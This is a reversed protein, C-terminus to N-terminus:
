NRRRRAEARKRADNAERAKAEKADAEERPKLEKDEKERAVDAEAYKQQEKIM